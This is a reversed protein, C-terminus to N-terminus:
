VSTGDMGPNKAVSLIWPGRELMWASLHLTRKKVSSIDRWQVNGSIWSCTRLIRQNCVRVHSSDESFSSRDWLRSRRRWSPRYVVSKGSAHGEGGRCRARKKNM